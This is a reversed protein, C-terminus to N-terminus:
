YKSSGKAKPKEEQKSERQEIASLLKKFADTEEKRKQILMEVSDKDKKIKDM